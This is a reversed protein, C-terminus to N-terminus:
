IRLIRKTIDPERAFKLNLFTSLSHSIVSQAAPLLHIQYLQDASRCKRLCVSQQGLLHAHSSGLVMDLFVFCHLPGTGVIM